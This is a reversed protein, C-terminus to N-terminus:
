RHVPILLVTGDALADGELDNASRIDELTSRCSKAIDWLEEGSSVARIVVSPNVEEKPSVASLMVSSVYPIDTLATMRWSFEVDMRVEFGGTVPVATIEGI